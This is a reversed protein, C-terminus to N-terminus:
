LLHTGQYSFLFLKHNFTTKGSAFDCNLIGFERGNKDKKPPKDWYLYVDFVLTHLKKRDGLYVDFKQPGLGEFPLEPKVSSIKEWPIENLYLKEKLTALVLESLREKEIEELKKFELNLRHLPNLILPFAFITVLSFAILLELLLFPRKM